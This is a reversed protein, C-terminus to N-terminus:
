EFFCSGLSKCSLGKTRSNFIGVSGMLALSLIAFHLRSGIDTYMVSLVTVTLTKEHIVGHDLLIKTM